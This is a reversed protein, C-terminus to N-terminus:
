LKKYIEEYKSMLDCKAMIYTHCRRRITFTWMTGNSDKMFVCGVNDPFMYPLNEPVMKNFALTDMIARKCMTSYSMKIMKIRFYM